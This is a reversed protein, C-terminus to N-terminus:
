LLTDLWDDSKSDEQSMTMDIVPKRVQADKEANDAKSEMKEKLEVVKARLLRIREEYHHKMDEVGQLRVNFEELQEEMERYQELERDADRLKRETEILNASLTNVAEDLKDRRDSIQQLDETLRTNQESLKEILQSQSYIRQGSEVSTTELEAARAELAELEHRTRRPHLWIDLGRGM